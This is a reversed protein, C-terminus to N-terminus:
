SGWKGEFALKLRASAEHVGEALLGESRSFEHRVRSSTVLFHTIGLSRITEAYDNDQYYYDFREDFDGVRSITDRTVCICWGVLEQMVRYGQLWPKAIQEETFFTRHWNPELPCASGMRNRVMAEVLSDVSGETFILDNNCILVFDGDCMALGANLFRNYNFPGVPRITTCPYTLHRDMDGGNSEVVVTNVPRASAESLTNITRCTLGYFGVDSTNTLIVADIKM